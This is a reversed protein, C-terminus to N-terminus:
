ARPTGQIEKECLMIRNWVVTLSLADEEKEDSLNEAIDMMVDLADM